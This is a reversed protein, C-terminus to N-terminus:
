ASLMEPNFTHRAVEGYEKHLVIAKMDRKSRYGKESHWADKAALVRFSECKVGPFEQTADHHVHGTWWFRHDTEGWDTARDHAMLLPLDKMKVTDGHHIGILCKGFRYYHFKAPSTDITVRPENEYVNELAEMLFISSSPDHNGREVIVHVSEHQTLAAKILYRTSRVAARVMKPYRGDADLINGSQPTAPVFSDYHLLDGLLTVLAQGCTPTTKVLHDFAGILLKEAIDLDYNEHTEEHWSLMGFHHDSVNYCALLDEAGSSPGKTPKVKPLTDVMGQVAERLMEEMREQDRTTKVWEMAVEGKSTYLTSRGRINYGDPGDGDFGARGEPPRPVYLSWDAERDLRETAKTYWSAAGSSPVKNEVAAARIAGVQGNKPMVGRPPYGLRLKEEVAAIRKEAEDESIAPTPM